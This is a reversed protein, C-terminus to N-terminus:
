PAARGIPTGNPTGVARHANDRVKLASTLTINTYSILDGTLVNFGQFVLGTTVLTEDPTGANYLTTANGSTKIDNYIRPDYIKGDFASNYSYVTSSNNGIVLANGDEASVSGVPTQVTTLTQSVGDIYIIPATTPTTINHTILVHTWTALPVSNVPTRWIGDASSAGTHAQMFEIKRGTYASIRYGSGYESAGLDSAAASLAGFIYERSAPDDDM